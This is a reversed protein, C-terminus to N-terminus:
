GSLCRGAKHGANSTLCNLTLCFTLQRETKSVFVRPLRNRFLFHTQPECIQFNQNVYLQSQRRPAMMGLLCLMDPVYPLALNNPDLKSHFPPFLPLSWSQLVWRVSVGLPRFVESQAPSREVTSLVTSRRCLVWTWHEAGAPWPWGVSRTGLAGVKVHACM